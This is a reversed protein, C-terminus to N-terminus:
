SLMTELRQHVAVSVSQVTDWSAHVAAEDGALAAAELGRLATSLMAAGANAAAGAAAHAAERLAAMDGDAIAAAMRETQTAYSKRFTSLMLKIVDDEDTGLVAVLMARDIPDSPDSASNEIATEDGGTKTGAPEGLWYALSNAMARLSVPKVLYEDMGIGLCREAEGAMTNATLAVIPIRRSSGRKAEEDRITQTLTYGDMNPMHCDTLLLGYDNARWKRLAEVGDAALEVAYGLLALQRQVVLQNTENDEAVLVLTGAARATEVPPLVVPALTTADQEPVRPEPSLRGLVVGIMSLLTDRRVPRPLNITFLREVDTSSRGMPGADMRLARIEPDGEHTRFHEVLATLPEVDPARGALLVDFTEGAEVRSLGTKADPEITVSMGKPELLSRIMRAVPQNPEIVLATVGDLDITDAASAAQIAAPEVQIRFWFTSGAGVVSSVGISGAMLEVLRACISLGLGTGGFRRTTSTEAQQFPQFLTGRRDEAIGIGTDTVRFDVWWFSPDAKEQTATIVLEVSGADTFKAANSVLNMLIQRLRIPDGLIVSPVSPAITLALDLRKRNAIPALTDFVGEAVQRLQVPMIELEMREAEIKSFDLIDDIIHLLQGASERITRALSRQDEDLGSQELVEVLGIVANMPTRIEHSMAALFASKARTAEEAVEKAHLADRAAQKQATVDVIVNIRAGNPLPAIIYQVDYRPETFAVEQTVISEAALQSQRQALFAEFPVSQYAPFNDWIYRSNVELTPHSSLIDDSLGTLTCYTDNWFDLREDAEYVLVGVPLAHVIARMKAETAKAEDRAIELSRNREELEHELRKRETIPYSAVLACHRGQYDMLRGYALIWLPEDDQGRLEIEFEDVRGDERLRRLLEFRRNLDRYIGIVSSRESGDTRLGYLTRAAANTYILEHGDAPSLVIPVPISDLLDRQAQEARRRETIDTLTRVTGGDPLKRGYVLLWRGNRRQREYQYPGTASEDASWSEWADLVRTLHGDDVDYEGQETQLARLEQATPRTMFFEAPVDLLDCAQRNFLITRNDADNVLIGQEMSELIAELFRTKTASEQEADRLRTQEAQLSRTMTEITHREESVRAILGDVAFRFRIQDLVATESTRAFRLLALMMIVVISAVVAMDVDAFWILTGALPLMATFAFAAFSRFHAALAGLAGGSMGAITVLIIALTYANDPDLFLVPLTGWFAGTIASILVFRLSWLHGLQEDSAASDFTRYILLRVIALAVIGISWPALHATEVRGWLLFSIGVGVALNVLAAPRTPDFFARMQQGLVRADSAGQMTGIDTAAM